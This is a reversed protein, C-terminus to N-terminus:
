YRGILFWMVWTLGLSFVLAGSLAFLVTIPNLPVFLLVGLFCANGAAMAWFYDRRKRRHARLPKAPPAQASPNEKAVNARLAEDITLGSHSAEDSPDNVKEFEATKLAWRRSANGEGQGTASEDSMGTMNGDIQEPAANEM